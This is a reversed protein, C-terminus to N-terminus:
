GALEVLKLVTNWNRGTAVVGLRRELLTPLKARGAGDPLHLFAERGVVTFAEPALAAAEAALAAVAEAAPATALFFVYLTKPAGAAAPAAAAPYPNAAVVAALEGPTRVLVRVGSVGLDEVVGRELAAAVADPAADGDILLNGSAVYTRPTAFGLREALARLDAMSVKRHGGVNIGRLLAIFTTM